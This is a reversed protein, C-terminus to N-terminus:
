VRASRPGEPEGKMAAIKDRLKAAEEYREDKVAKDLRKLARKMPDVPLKRRIERAFRKLVKVENAQAFAEPQSYREFFDRIDAIGRDIERLAERLHKDRYQISAKARTNMMTIYPRYQELAFRDDDDTAYRNCLDLVRLNRATDRVVGSFDELVFLSLYRQYYMVSEDRLSQCDDDSISFGLDNGNREKYDALKQEYFELLSEHGHPKLGDPRGTMEMQLLGLDLRMQLKPRGDLGIVKRVNITGPEFEWDEIMPTIDKNAGRMDVTPQGEKTSRTEPTRGAVSPTGPEVPKNGAEGSAKGPEKKPLGDSSGSQGSKFHQSM